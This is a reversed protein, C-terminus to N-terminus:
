IKNGKLADSEIGIINAAAAYRQQELQLHCCAMITQSTQQMLVAM